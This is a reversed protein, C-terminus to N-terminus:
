RQGATARTTSARRRRAAARLKEVVDFGRHASSSRRSRRTRTGPGSSSARRSRACRARVARAAVRRARHLGPRRCECVIETTTPAPASARRLSRARERQPVAVADPRHTDRRETVNTERRAHVASHAVQNRPYERLTTARTQGSGTSRTAANRRSAPASARTSSNEVPVGVASSAASATPQSSACITLDSTKRQSARQTSTSTGPSRRASARLTAAATPARSARRRAARVLDLARRAELGARDRRERQRVDVAHQM